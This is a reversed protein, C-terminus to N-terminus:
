FKAIEAAFHVLYGFVFFFRWLLQVLIFLCFQFIFSKNHFMAVGLRAMFFFWEKLKVQANWFFM